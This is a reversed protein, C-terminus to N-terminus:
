SHTKPPKKREVFHIRKCGLFDILHFGTFGMSDKVRRLVQTRGSLAQIRGPMIMMARSGLGQSGKVPHSFVITGSYESELIAM